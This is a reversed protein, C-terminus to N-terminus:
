SLPGFPVIGSRLSHIGTSSSITSRIQFGSVSIKFNFPNWLRSTSPLNCTPLKFDITLEHEFNNRAKKFRGQKMKAIYIIKPKICM